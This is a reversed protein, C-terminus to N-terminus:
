NNVNIYISEDAVFQTDHSDYQTIIHQVRNAM